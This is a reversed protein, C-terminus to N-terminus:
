ETELGVPFGLGMLASGSSSFGSNKETYRAHPDLGKLRLNKRRQNAGNLVQVVTVLAQARDKSVVM